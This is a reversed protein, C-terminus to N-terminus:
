YQTANVVKTTSVDSRNFQCQLLATASTSDLPKSFLYGQGYECGLARLKAQQNTTEIGEAVVDMGLTHSLMIITRVIAADEDTDGMRSVFSRDVKLTNVPFRHLYSLSSYGTGFDDISLRLKLIRLKLMITIAAEVDKMAVSETIELKLSQRNLNTEKLIQEIYEVLDPQTLQQGSLNVSMTLPPDTIFQTQWICLQRCAEHLIWKGLPIILETEEAVPIFETPSVLGYQPHRWRVLAEFGTIVGTELFVIPQYHLYFEQQEIAHRLDAELQFRKVVQNRMGTAFVEHRAKGLDKARYMAIHADRLLDAPQHELETQNFAIGISISTFIEQGNTQFPLTMEQQLHDALSIAESADTIGEQLIAFEDGGIRAITGRRKLCAKLRYTIDLLLQDGVQHGFSENIVKFRDLDLFLVAFRAKKRIKKETYVRLPKHRSIARQLFKLFLDRNPLGTLSDHLANYLIKYALINGATALFALSPSILPIWGAQIFVGFCISSLIGLAVAGAVGLPLPHKIRWVLLGGILAWTWVWIAEVWEPLFWFLPKQLLTTSLLQSVLQAHLLVGPMSPNASKGASYPTFFLDKLSPATTGILVVKDKIWDPNIQGNLVESLSVERAVHEASRYSILVQYGADDINQYGGANSDLPPFVTNGLLLADPKVKLVIGEQALYKLSLRLSFSYFKKDGEYAYILNRRVVGDPDIVFDNFGIQEASIGPIASVGESNTDGLNTITIVNPTQLEKLLSEHGQPQPLNRYLDLGIVRPKLEQIKQLLQSLTQDSLPWQKQKQLDAETIKIVLLRPDPGADPLFRIMQDFTVLELFQFCGLQKAGLVLGTIVISAVIVSQRFNLTPFFRQSHYSYYDALLSTLLSFRRSLKAIM